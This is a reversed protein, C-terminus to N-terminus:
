RSGAALGISWVKESPSSQRTSGSRVSSCSSKSATFTTCTSKAVWPSLTLPVAESSLGCLSHDVTEVPRRMTFRYWYLSRGDPSLTM